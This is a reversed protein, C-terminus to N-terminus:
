PLQSILSQPLHATIEDRLDPFRQWLVCAVAFWRTGQVVKRDPYVKTQVAVVKADRPTWDDYVHNESFGLWISSGSIGGLRPLSTKSRDDADRPDNGLGLLIHYDASYSRFGSTTGYYLGTRYTFSEQFITVMDKSQRTLVSPFGYLFYWGNPLTAGFEIASMRVFWDGPLQNAQDADIHMVALDALEDTRFCNGYLPTLSPPDGNWILPHEGEEDLLDFVHAATVLFRHDGVQLLTGTGRQAVVADTQVVTISGQEIVAAENWGLIPIVSRQLIPHLRDGISAAIALAPPDDCNFQGM